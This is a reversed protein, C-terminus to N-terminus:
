RGGRKKYLHLRTKKPIKTETISEFSPTSTFSKLIMCDDSEQQLILPKNDEIKDMQRQVRQLLPMKNNRLESKTYRM